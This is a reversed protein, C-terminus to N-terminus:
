SFNKEKQGSTKLHPQRCKPLQPPPHTIGPTGKGCQPLHKQVAFSAFTAFRIGVPGHEGEPLM